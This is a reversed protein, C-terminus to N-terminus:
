ATAPPTTNGLTAREAPSLNAEAAARVQALETELEAIRGSELTDRKAEAAALEDMKKLVAATDVSTGGAALATVATQIAAVAAQLAKIRARVDALAVHHAVPTGDYPVQTLTYHVDDLKAMDAAGTTTANTTAAPIVWPATSTEHSTRTNFHVHKDHPNPGTYPHWTGLGGPMSRSTIRRNYIVYQISEHAIAAAICAAVDVGDIDMDWADVSGDPDPNHDSATKSHALDGLTGDSTKDRKPWRANVAQRFRTLAPNLYWAM